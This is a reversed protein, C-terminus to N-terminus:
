RLPYPCYSQKGGRLDAVGLVNCDLGIGAIFEDCTCGKVLKFTKIEITETM